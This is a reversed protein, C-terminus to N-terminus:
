EAPLVIKQGARIRGDTSIIAKNAERILNWASSRGYFRLAIKYLTDGDQVVYTDPRNIRPMAEKAAKEAAHAARVAERKAKADPDQKLLPAEEAEALLGKATKMESTDAPVQDGTEGLLSKAEAIESQILDEEADHEAEARVFSKLRENEQELAMTRQMANELDKSFKVARREAKKLSEQLVAIRRNGEESANLGYKVALEDAMKRECDALRERALRAKDSEPRQQLYEHYACYAGFYDKRSDQLLCAFQFRASANAPNAACVKEFGKLAADIRGARYDDMAARYVRDSRELDLGAKGVYDCATLSLLAMLMMTKKLM